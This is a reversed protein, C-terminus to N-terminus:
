LVLQDSECQSCQVGDRGKEEKMKENEGGKWKWKGRGGERKM